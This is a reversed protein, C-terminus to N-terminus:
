IFLFLSSRKDAAFYEKTPRFFGNKPSISIGKTELGVFYREENASNLWKFKFFTKFTAPFLNEKNM